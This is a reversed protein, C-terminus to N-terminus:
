SVCGGCGRPWLFPSRGDGGGKERFGREKLEEEEAETERDRNLWRFISHTKGYKLGEGRQAM